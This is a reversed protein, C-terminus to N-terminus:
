RVAVDYTHKSTTKQFGTSDKETDSEQASNRSVPLISAM